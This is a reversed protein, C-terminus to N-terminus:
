RDPPNIIASIEEKLKPLTDRATKWLIVYDIGFYEHILKDRMGAIKKWPISTNQDKISKPLHKVAEGIVEFSRIVANLTKGDNLFEEYTMTGIFFDVQDISNLIDNFYDQYERQTM